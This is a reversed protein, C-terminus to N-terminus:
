GELLTDEVHDETLLAHLEERITELSQPLHTAYETESTPQGERHPAGDPVRGVPRGEGICQRSVYTGLGAGHHSRRMCKMVGDLQVTEHRRGAKPVHAHTRRDLRCLEWQWLLEDGAVESRERHCLRNSSQKGVPTSGKDFVYGFREAGIFLTVVQRYRCANM